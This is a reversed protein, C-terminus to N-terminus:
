NVWAMAQESGDSGAHPAHISIRLPLQRQRSGLRREGCPSRPNFDPFCSRCCPRKCRDSGAHPAHISIRALQNNSNGQHPTAGRMPLTSQFVHVYGNAGQTGHREGCPSRPNFNSSPRAPPERRGDSGAHPAHISIAQRFDCYLGCRRKERCPPLSTSVGSSISYIQCFLGLLELTSGFAFQEPAVWDKVGIGM